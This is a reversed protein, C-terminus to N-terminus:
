LLSCANWPCESTLYRYGCTFLQACKIYKNSYRFRVMDIKNGSVQLYNNYVLFFCKWSLIQIESSIQDRKMNNGTLTKYYATSRRMMGSDSVGFSM